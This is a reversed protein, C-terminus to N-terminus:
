TSARSELDMTERGPDARQIAWHQQARTTQVEETQAEQQHEQETTGAGVVVVESLSSQHQDAVVATGATSPEVTVQQIPRPPPPSNHSDPLLDALLESNPIEQGPPVRPNQSSAQTSKKRTRTLKASSTSACSGKLEESSPAGVVKVMNAARERKKFKRAKKPSKAPSRSIEAELPSEAPPFVNSGGGNESDSHVEYNTSETVQLSNTSQRATSSSNRGSFHGGFTATDAAHPLRADSPNERPPLTEDGVAAGAPEVGIPVACHGEGISGFKKTDDEGSVERSSSSPRGEAHKSLDAMQMDELWSATSRGSRSKQIAAAVVMHIKNPERERSEVGGLSNIRFKGSVAPHRPKQCFLDGSFGYPYDCLVDTFTAQNEKDFYPPLAM